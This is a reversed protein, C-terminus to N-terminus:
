VGVRREESRPTQKQTKKKIILNQEPEFATGSDDLRSYLLPAGAVPKPEAQSSGNWVVHARGNRGVALQAGRITGIGIASGPHRNVRVPATGNTRGGPLKQYFVDCAKPEGQLWVLHVTGGDDTVALPQMAGDPLRRVEVAAFGTSPTFLSLLSLLSLYRKM